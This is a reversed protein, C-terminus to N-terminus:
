QQVPIYNIRVSNITIIDLMQSSLSSRFCTSSFLGELRSVSSPVVKFTEVKFHGSLYRERVSLQTTRYYKVAGYKEM